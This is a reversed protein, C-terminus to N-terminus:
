RTQGIGLRGMADGLFQQIAEESNFTLTVGRSQGVLRYTRADIRTYTMEPPASGGLEELTDPLRGNQARYTEIKQAQFYMGVRLGAEAAEASPPPPLTPTVWSPHGFWLYFSFAGALPLSIAAARQRSRGIPGAKKSRAEERRQADQLVESVLDATEYGTSRRLDQKPPRPREADGPTM